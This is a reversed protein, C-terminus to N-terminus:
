TGGADTGGHAAERRRRRLERILEDVQRREDETLDAASAAALGDPTGDDNAPAHQPGPAMALVEEEESGLYRALARLHGAAVSTATAGQLDLLVALPVGTADAVARLSVRREIVAERLWRSLRAAGSATGPRQPAPDESRGLLYDTSVQFHDALRVLMEPDPKVRGSEWGWVTRQGVGVAEGLSTQTEGTATRLLRLRTALTTM